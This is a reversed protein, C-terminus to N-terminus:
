HLKLPKQKLFIFFPYNEIQIKLIISFILKFILIMFLPVLLAWFFGLLPHKYRVRLEKLVLRILLDRFKIITKIRKFIGFM